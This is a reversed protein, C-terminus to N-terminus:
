EASPLDSLRDALENLELAIRNWDQNEGTVRYRNSQIVPSWVTENSDRWFFEGTEPQVAFGISFGVKQSPDLGDYQASFYSYKLLGNTGGLIPQDELVYDGAQTFGLGHIM